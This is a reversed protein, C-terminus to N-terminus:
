ERTEPAADLEQDMEEVLQRVVKAMSAVITERSADARESQVAELLRQAIADV